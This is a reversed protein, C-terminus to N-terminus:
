HGQMREQKALFYSIGYVILVTKADPFSLSWLVCVGLVVWFSTCLRCELLHMGGTALMPTRKIISKRITAFLAGQVIVVTLIYVIVAQYMIEIM